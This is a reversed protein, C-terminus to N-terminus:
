SWEAIVYYPMGGPLVSWMERPFLPKVRDIGIGLLFLQEMHQHLGTWHNGHRDECANLFSWGGGVKERFQLPLEDLMADIEAMHNRLRVRNFKVSSVIGDANIREQFDDGDKFLCESFVANVQEPDLVISVAM